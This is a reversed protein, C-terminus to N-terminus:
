VPQDALAPFSARAIINFPARRDVQRYVAIGDVRLPSMLAPRFYDQLLGHLRERTSESVIRSSLTMHWRFDDFIYPYGWELMRADQEPSLNARRRREIDDPSLEARFHDFDKVCAEHLQRMAEFNSTLRLALFQGLTKVSLNVDFVPQKRAFSHLHKVLEAETRDAHLEFPAKMTAHFGYHSPSSTLRDIDDDNIDDFERRRIKDGTFASRGLWESGLLCIPHDKAPTYYIAYRASQSM